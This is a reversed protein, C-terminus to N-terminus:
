MRTTCIRWPIFSYTDNDRYIGQDQYSVAGGTDGAECCSALRHSDRAEEAVLTAGTVRSIEFGVQSARVEGGRIERARDNVTARM